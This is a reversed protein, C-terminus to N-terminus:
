DSWKNNEYKIDPFVRDPDITVSKLKDKTDLKIVWSDTNQWVEVPYKIKQKKGSASEYELYIPMAMQALNDVTILVGNAPDDNIYKVEKVSQDLKYNELFMQKWFWGLDEGGANEMTRFFDFPSPHKYAWKNIYTKFAYDFREPGLIENRLLQLAYGPRAYLSNAINKEQLADPIKMVGESSEGFLLRSRGPAEPRKYEGNNFDGPALSNIFIDFGEDM